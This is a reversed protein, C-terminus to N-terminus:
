EFMSIQPTEFKRCFTRRHERTLGYERIANIHDSTGYGKNSKFCYDPYNQDLSGMIRDRTVKAIISAAAISVSRSDGKVIVKYPLDFEPARNGDILLYDPAGTLNFVAERMANYTAQLINISDIIKQNVIGIGVARANANIDDFLRDRTKPTLKKSDNIGEIACGPELVVAAAVVPGALSGRGAEDIGAVSSYGSNWLESEFEYM